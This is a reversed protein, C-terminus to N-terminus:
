GLLWAVLITVLVTVGTLGLQLKLAMGLAVSAVLTTGVQGLYNVFNTRSIYKDTQYDILDDGLQIFLICALGWAFLQKDLFFFGVATLLISEQYAKLRTPLPTVDFGMGVIYSAWFLIVALEFDIVVAFTFCLLSYPLAARDLKIAITEKNNIKDLEQDLYDDM